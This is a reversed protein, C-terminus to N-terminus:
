EITYTISSHENTLAMFKISNMVTTDADDVIYVIRGDGFSEVTFNTGNVPGTTLETEPTVACLDVVEVEDPNYTVIIKRQRVGQKEPAVIVFNFGNDKGVNVKLEPTTTQQIEETWGSSGASNNARVQYAHMTNAKLGEHVYSTGEVEVSSGDVNVIYSTAGSVGEWTLTITNSTSTAQLNDPISPPTKKTIEDSWLSSVVSNTARVRYSHSSNTSLGEHVYMTDTTQVVTNGDIEVEYVDAGTVQDWMVKISGKSSHTRLNGPTGLLTPHVLAESWEGTIVSSKARVRYAHYTFPELGIHEFTTKEGLDIVEGDVFLDYGSAGDVSDWSLTISESTSVAELNSPIDFLTEITIEESWEGAGGKNTARVRYTHKSNPVLNSHKYTSNLGNHHITGDVEIEYSSAGLVTDWSVVIDNRTSTATINSPTTPLTTVNIPESWHSVREENRSRVRYTHESGSELNRHTYGRASGNDRIVGDMEIDYGTAGLVADWTIIVENDTVSTSINKPVQPLTKINIVSSWDSTGNEHTARIRYSYINNPELGDHVYSSGDISTIINGDIELDYAVAGASLDWNLVISHDTPEGRLNKPISPLTTQAAIASWQGVGSTNKARVKYTYPTNSNLGSETYHTVNGITIITRNSEIEYHTAGRVESWTLNLAHSEPTITINEPVGPLTWKKAIPTWDGTVVNTRPRVRYSHETGSLLDSHTYSVHDGNNIITGDVEIDYQTAGLVPSWEVVITDETVEMEDISTNSLQTTETYTTSWEGIVIGNNARVRYAHMTGPMLDDHTYSTKAGAHIVEGDVEIDYDEAFSVANWQVEITTETGTTSIDGPVGIPYLLTSPIVDRGQSASEWLLKIRSAGNTERYEVIIDYRKGAELNLQGSQVRNSHADWDNIILTDDIWLRVGGHAETTFTYEESFLAEIQGTWRISYEKNNVGDAPSKNKWDFDINQDIRTTQLDSLETSDFYEGKLGVGSGAEPLTNKYIMASWEGSEGDVIARVRYAHRTNPTLGEHAYETQLAIHQINGDIEIDYADAGFVGDWTLIITTSTAAAELNTPVDSLVTKKILPSWDSSTVQNTARVRYTHETNPMLEDHLFTTSNGNHIVTGDVEIDYGEALEVTDWTVIIQSGSPNAQVNGPISIKTAAIVVESWDGAFEPLCSRVRFRHETGPPLNSLTYSLQDEVSIIKDNAEIEYGTAGEVADWSITISHSAADTQINGPAPPIYPPNLQSQPIIQKGQSLSSWYLRAQASGKHDEYEMVIDYSTGAVLSISAQEKEMGNANWQDIILQEDIWLRVGGHTETYFTYTQSYRPEVKGKWRISFNDKNLRADPAGGGWDFEISPDLRSFIFEDFDTGSYYEAVLGRGNGNPTPVIVQVPSSLISRNGANDQAAVQYTYISQPTVEIDHYYVDGTVTSVEVDDKYIIYETVGQADYSSDWEIVVDRDTVQSVRVNAPTTPPIKDELILNKMISVANIATYSEDDSSISLKGDQVQVTQTVTSHHGAALEHGSLVNLDEIYLTNNTDYVADGVTVAIDYYGEPVGIEWVGSDLFLLSTDNISDTPQKQGVAQESHDINWGYTYDGRDGFVQGIDSLYGEASTSHSPHFNVLIHDEQEAYVKTNLNIWPSLVIGLLLVSSLLFSIWRMRKYM